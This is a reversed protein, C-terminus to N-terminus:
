SQINIKGDVKDRVEALTKGDAFEGDYIKIEASFIEYELHVADANM